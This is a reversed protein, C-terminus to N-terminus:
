SSLNPLCSLEEQRERSATSPLVVLVGIAVYPVVVAAFVAMMLRTIPTGPGSTSLSTVAAALAALYLVMLLLATLLPRSFAFREM